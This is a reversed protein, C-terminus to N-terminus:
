LKLLHRRCLEITRIADGASCRDIGVGDRVRGVFYDLLNEYGDRRTDLEVPKVGDDDIVDFRDGGFSFRVAAKEFSAWGGSCLKFGAPFINGCEIAVTTGSRYRWLANVYRDGFRDAALPSNVVEEPEGLLSAAYDIDHIALDYLAGGWGAKVEKRRWEGWSPEANYRYLKLLRLQGFRGTEVMERFKLYAPFFRVCHAVMLRVGRDEALKQLRRAEELDLSIPKELIVQCGSELCRSAVKFHLYTHVAVIAIDPKAAALAADLEGYVPTGAIAPLAPDVVGCLELQPHNRVNEAHKRGMFGYGVVLVRYRSM